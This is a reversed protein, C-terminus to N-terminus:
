GHSQGKSEVQVGTAINKFLILCAVFLLAVIVQLGMSVLLTGLVCAILRFLWALAPAFQYFWPSEGLTEWMKPWDTIYDFGIALKLGLAIAPIGRALKPFTLEMLTPTLNFMWIFLSAFFAVDDLTTAGLMADRWPQTWEWTSGLDFTWLFWSLPMLLCGLVLFLVLSQGQGIGRLNRNLMGVGTPLDLLAYLGTM